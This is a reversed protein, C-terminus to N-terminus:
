IMNQQLKRALSASGVPWAGAETHGLGGYDGYCAHGFSNLRNGGAYGPLQSQHKSRCFGVSYVISTYTYIYVLVYIITYIYIYM